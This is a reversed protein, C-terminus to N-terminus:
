ISDGNILLMPKPIAKYTVKKNKSIIRLLAKFLEIFYNILDELDELREVLKPLQISVVNLRHFLDKRFSGEDILTELDQIPVSIDLLLISPRLNM